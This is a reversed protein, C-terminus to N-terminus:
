VVPTQGPERHQHAAPALPKQRGGGGTRCATVAGVICEGAGVRVSGVDNLAPTGRRATQVFVTVEQGVELGSTKSVRRVLARKVGDVRCFGFAQQAQKRERIHVHRQVFDVTPAGFRLALAPAHHVVVAKGVLGHEVFHRAFREGHQVALFVAKHQHDLASGDVFLGVGHVGLAPHEIGEFKVTRNRQGLGIGFATRVGQDDDSRVMLTRAYGKNAARAHTVGAQLGQYAFATAGSQAILHHADILLRAKGFVFDSGVAVGLGGVDVVPHQHAIARVSVAHFIEAAVRQRQLVALLGEGLM